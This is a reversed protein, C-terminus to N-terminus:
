KNDVRNLIGISSVPCDKSYNDQCHFSHIQAMLGNEADIRFEISCGKKGKYTYQNVSYANGDLDDDIEPDGNPYENKAAGKINYSHKTLKNQAKLNFELKDKQVFECDLVELFTDNEFKYEAKTGISNDKLGKIQSTENAQKKNSNNCSVILLFIEFLISIKM